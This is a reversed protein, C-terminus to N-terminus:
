LSAILSKVTALGLASLHPATAKYYTWGSIAPALAFGRARCKDNTQRLPTRPSPGM